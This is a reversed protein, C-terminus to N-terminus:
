EPADHLEQVLAALVPAGASPLLRPAPPALKREAAGHVPLPGDGPRRARQLTEVASYTASGAGAGRHLWVMKVGAEICGQVVADTQDRPTMILAAEISPKIDPVRWFCARGEASALVPSVPVVDYGRALLERLIARSLDKESRSVGVLAIRKLSLFERAKLIMPSNAM